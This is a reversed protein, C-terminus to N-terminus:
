STFSEKFLGFFSVPFRIDRLSVFFDSYFGCMVTFLIYNESLLCQIKKIQFLYNAASCNGLAILLRLLLQVNRKIIM